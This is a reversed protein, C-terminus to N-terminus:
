RESHENKLLVEITNWMLVVLRRAHIATAAPADVPLDPQRERLRDDRCHRDKGKHPGPIVEDPGKDDNSTRIHHGNRDAQCRDLGGETNTIGLDHGRRHKTTQGSHDHKGEELALNHLSQCSAQFFLLLYTLSYLIRLSPLGCVQWGKTNEIKHL